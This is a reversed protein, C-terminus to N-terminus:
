DKSVKNKFIFSIIAERLLLKSNIHPLHGEQLSEKSYNLIGSQAEYNIDKPSPNRKNNTLEHKCSTNAGNWKELGDIGPKECKARDPNDATAQRKLDWEHRIVNGLTMDALSTRYKLYDNERGLNECLHSHKLDCSM